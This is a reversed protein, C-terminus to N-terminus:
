VGERAGAEWAAVFDDIVAEAEGLIQFNAGSFAFPISTVGPL